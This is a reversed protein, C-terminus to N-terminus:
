SVNKEGEGHSSEGKSKATGLGKQSNAHDPNLIDSMKNNPLNKYFNNSTKPRESM